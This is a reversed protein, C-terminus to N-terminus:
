RLELREDSFVLHVTQTLHLKVSNAGVPLSSELYALEIRNRSEPDFATISIFGYLDHQMFSNRTLKVTGPGVNFMYVLKKNNYQTKVWKTFKSQKQQEILSADIKSSTNEMKPLTERDEFPNLDAGHEKLYCYWESFKVSEDWFTDICDNYESRTLARGFLGCMMRYLDEKRWAKGLKAATDRFDQVTITWGYKMAMKTSTKQLAKVAQRDAKELFSEKKLFGMKDCGLKICIKIDITVIYADDDKRM